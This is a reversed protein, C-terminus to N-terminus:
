NNRKGDELGAYYAANIVEVLSCIYNEENETFRSGESELNQKYVERMAEVNIPYKM